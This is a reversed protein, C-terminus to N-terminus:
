TTIETRPGLKLRYVLESRHLVFNARQYLQVAPYNSAQTPVTLLDARGAFWAIIEDLIGAAVGRRRFRPVTAVLDLRGTRGAADLIAAMYGALEGDIEGVIFIQARGAFDNELWRARLSRVGDRPNEPDNDYRGGWWEGAMLEVCAKVDAATAPRVKVDGSRREVRPAPLTLALTMPVDVLEFGARELAWVAPLDSAEVRRLLQDCGQTKLRVALESLLAVAGSSSTARFDRIWYIERGLHESDFGEQSAAIAGGDGDLMLAHVSAQGCLQPFHKALEERRIKRVVTKM